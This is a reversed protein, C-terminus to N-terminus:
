SAVGFFVREKEIVKDMSKKKLIDLHEISTM